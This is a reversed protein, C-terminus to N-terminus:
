GEDQRYLGQTLVFRGVEEPVLRKMMEEDGRKVAERVKTSSIMDETGEEGVRRGVLQVRQAWESRGGEDEREGAALARVYEDQSDWDGGKGWRYDGGARRTVQVRSTSFFPDLARLSNRSPPYYKPDLLRILTDFGVLYEQEMKEHYKTDKGSGGDPSPPDYYVGSAAIAAAKDHFYPKKTVGIDVTVADADDDSDNNNTSNEEFEVAAGSELENDDNRADDHFGIPRPRRQSSTEGKM